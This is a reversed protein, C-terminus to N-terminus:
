HQHHRHEGAGGGRPQQVWVKVTIEGAREFRLRLDFRDGVVLAQDLGVLMLHHRQGHRLPTTKRAPLEIAAVERMRAVNDDLLTEHLTVKDARPTSAGLLRDAEGGRNRIGRFYVAGHAMGAVTPTAYPHDITLSGLRFDHAAAPAGLVLGALLGLLARRLPVAAAQRVARTTKSPNM